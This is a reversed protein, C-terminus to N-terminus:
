SNDNLVSDAERIASLVNPLAKILSAAPPVDGAVFRAPLEGIDYAVSDLTERADRLQAKLESNRNALGAGFETAKDTEAKQEALKSEHWARRVRLKLEAQVAGIAEALYEPVSDVGGCYDRIAHALESDVDGPQKKAAMLARGADLYDCNM